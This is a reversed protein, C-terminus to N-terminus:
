DKRIRESKQFAELLQKYDTKVEKMKKRDASDRDFGRGRKVKEMEKMLEINKKRERFLDDKLKSVSESEPRHGTTLNSENHKLSKSHSLMRSGSKSLSKRLSRNSSERVMRERQHSTFSLGSRNLSRESEDLGKRGGKKRRLSTTSSRVSSNVSKRSAFSQDQQQGRKRLSKQSSNLNTSSKLIGRSPSRGGRSELLHSDNGVGSLKVELDKIKDQLSKLNSQMKNYSGSSDPAGRLDNSKLMSNTMVSNSMYSSQGERLYGSMM